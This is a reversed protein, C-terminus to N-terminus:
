VLHLFANTTIKCGAVIGIVIDKMVGGTKHQCTVLGLVNILINKCSTVAQEIAMNKLMVRNLYCFYKHGFLIYM